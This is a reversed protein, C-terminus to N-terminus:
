IDMLFLGILAEPKGGAATSIFGIEKENPM